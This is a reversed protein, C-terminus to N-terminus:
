LGKTIKKRFLLPRKLKEKEPIYEEHQQENIRKMPVVFGVGKDTHFVIPSYKLAFELTVEDVGLIEMCNVVYAPNFLCDNMYLQPIFKTKRTIDVKNAKQKAIQEKLERLTIISRATIENTDRTIINRVSSFIGEHRPVEDFGRLAFDSLIKVGYYSCIFYQNKDEDLMVGKIASYNDYNQKMLLKTANLRKIAKNGGKDKTAQKIYEESVYEFLKNVTKNVTFNLSSTEDYEVLAKLEKVYELTKEYFNAM